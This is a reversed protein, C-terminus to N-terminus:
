STLCRKDDRDAPMTKLPNQCLGFFCFVMNVVRKVSGILM